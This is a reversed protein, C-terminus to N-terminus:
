IAKPKRDSLWATPRTRGSAIKLIISMSKYRNGEFVTFLPQLTPRLFASSVECCANVLHPNNEKSRRPAHFRSRSCIPVRLLRRRPLHCAAAHCHPFRQRWDVIMIFRRLDRFRANCALAISETRQLDRRVQLIPPAINRAQNALLALKVGAGIAKEL